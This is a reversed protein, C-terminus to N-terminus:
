WTVRWAVWGKRGQRSLHPERCGAQALKVDVFHDTGWRINQRQRGNREQSSSRKEGASTCRSTMPPVQVRGTQHTRRETRRKRSRKIIEPSWRRWWGGHSHHCCTTAETGCTLLQRLHTTISKSSSINTTIPIAQITTTPNLPPYPCTCTCTPYHMTHQQMFSFFLMRIWRYRNMCLTCRM